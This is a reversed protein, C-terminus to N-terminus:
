VGRVVGEELRLRHQALSAIESSHTVLLVTLGRQRWAELIVGMVNEASAADLEGTVEDALLLDPENALAM